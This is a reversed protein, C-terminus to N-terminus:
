FWRIGKFEYIETQGLFDSHGDVYSINSGLRSGRHRTFKPNPPEDTSGLQLPGSANYMREHDWYPVVYYTACGFFVTEAPLEVLSLKPYYIGAPGSLQENIGYGSIFKISDERDSGVRLTVERQNLFGQYADGDSPDVWTQVTDAYGSRIMSKLWLAHDTPSAYPVLGNHDDTYLRVATALQRENSLCAMRRAQLRSRGLAPLLLSALVAIIAIVVLLEILTFGSRVRRVRRIPRLPHVRKM